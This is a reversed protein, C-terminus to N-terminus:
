KGVQLAKATIELSALDEVNYISLGRDIKKVFSSLTKGPGIEVFNRVGNDIMKRISQEWLVSSMVQRYLLDKVEESSTIYSANVNSILAKNLKGLKMPELEKKLEDAAPKLMSTHFPASVSLDITKMAGKEKALRAAADVANSEGGIVIQGPCNFNAPEVIGFSKAERCAERIKDESLGLVACMKGTGEPVAEQMFRGRKRVLPVVQSLTFVESVTLASYEGLSLGAVVDPQIDYLSLARYAAISMTVVAPQTNETLDLDEKRGDFILGKLDMHLSENAEEFTQKCIPFYDYLEKGM